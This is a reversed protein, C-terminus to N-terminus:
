NLGLPMYFFTAPNNYYGYTTKPSAQTFVTGPVNTAPYASVPAVTEDSFQDYGWYCYCGYDGNYTDVVGNQLPYSGPMNCYCANAWATGKTNEFNQGYIDEPLIGETLFTQNPLYKNTVTGPQKSAVKYAFYAWAAGVAYTAM